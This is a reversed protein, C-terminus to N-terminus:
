WYKGLTTRGKLAVALTEPAIKDAAIWKLTLSSGPGLSLLRPLLELSESSKAKFTIIGNEKTRQCANIKLKQVIFKEPVIFNSTALAIDVDHFLQNITSKLQCTGSSVLYVM